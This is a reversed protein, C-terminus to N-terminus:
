LEGAHKSLSQIYEHWTKTMMSYRDTIEYNFAEIVGEETSLDRNESKSQMVCAIFFPDSM